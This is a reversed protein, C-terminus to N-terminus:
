LQDIFDWAKEAEKELDPLLAVLKEELQDLLLIGSGISEMVLQKRDDCDPDTLITITAKGDATTAKSYAASDKEIHGGGEGIDLTFITEGNENRIKLAEPNYINFREIQEPTLRSQVVCACGVILARAGTSNMETIIKTNEM